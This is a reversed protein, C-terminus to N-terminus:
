SERMVYERLVEVVQVHYSRYWEHKGLAQAQQHEPDNRWALIQEQTHWYSIAIETNGQMCATFETCGYENMALERMRTAMLEYAEDLQNIEAKFIVAYV